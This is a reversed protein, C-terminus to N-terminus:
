QVIFPDDSTNTTDGELSKELQSSSKPGITIESESDDFTDKKVPSVLNSLGFHKELLKDSNRGRNFM